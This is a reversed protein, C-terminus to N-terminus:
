WEGSVTAGDVHEGRVLLRRHRGEIDATEFELVLQHSYSAGEMGKSAEESVNPCVEVNKGM